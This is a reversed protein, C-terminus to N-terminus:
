RCHHRPLWPQRSRRVRYFRYSVWCLFIILVPITLLSSAPIPGGFSLLTVSHKGGVLFEPSGDGDVEEISLANWKGPDDAGFDQEAVVNGSALEQVEFKSGSTFALRRGGSNLSYSKLALIPSASLTRQWKATLNEGGLAYAIGTETGALVEQVGDGDIDVFDMTRFGTETTSKMAHTVGDFLYLKGNIGLIEQVGDGDVDAVAVEDFGSWYEGLSISKWEVTGTKGDIVYLYVGPAGTHERSGGAIIELAGDGDVDAIALSIITTGDDYIYTQEIAHSVGDIVYIAGQYLVGTAILIEKIGDGDVDGVVVDHLGTWAQQQFFDPASKWEVNGTVTDYISVIGDDYGSNSSTSTIILEQRGDSDPDSILIGYFPGDEQESTWELAKSELDHVYFYDAGTSGAGAGWFLEEKGDGDTDMIGIHTVGSDPNALTWREQRTVGDYCHIEGFQGEGYLIEAIGDGDVDKLLLADIDLDVPIQWAPSQIDADFITVLYWAEAGVIEDMGDSDIDALAVRTGFDGESYSWQVNAADGVLEVVKGSSFVLELNADSDVNGIAVDKGGYPLPGELAWSGLTYIKTSNASVVVLETSGDNDVDGVTMSTVDSGPDLTAEQAHTKGNVIVVTQDAFALAIKYPEQRGVPFGIFKVIPSALLDSQWVMEYSAKSSSYRWIYWFDNDGFTTTSGGCVIEPQGDADVDGAVMGNKCIGSGTIGHRWHEQLTGSTRIALPATRRPSPVLKPMERLSDSKPYTRRGQAPDFVVRGFLDLQIGARLAARYEAANGGPSFAAAPATLAVMLLFLNPKAKM